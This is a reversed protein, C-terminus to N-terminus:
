RQAPLQKRAWMLNNVADALGSAASKEFWPIAAARDAKVPAVGYWLAKGWEDQACPDGLEAGRRYAQASEAAFGLKAQCYGLHGWAWGFEPLVAIARLYLASARELRKLREMARVSGGWRTELTTMYRLRLIYGHPDLRLGADLLRRAYDEDGHHRTLDILLSYSLLPRDDLPLSARLARTARM